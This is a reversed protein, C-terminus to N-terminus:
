HPSHDALARRRAFGAAYEAAWPAMGEGREGEAVGAQQELARLTV